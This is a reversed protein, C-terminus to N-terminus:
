QEEEQFNNNVWEQAAQQIEYAQEHDFDDPVRVEILVTRGRGSPSQSVSRYEYDDGERVWRGYCKRMDGVRLHLRQCKFCFLVKM